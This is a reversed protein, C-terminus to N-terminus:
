FLNVATPRSERLAQFIRPAAIRARDLDKERGLAVCVGYAASVGILPAGRVMLSRIAHTVQDLTTLDAQVAEGPLRTQDLVTMRGSAYTIVPITM